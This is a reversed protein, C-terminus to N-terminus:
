VSMPLPPPLESSKRLLVFGMRSAFQEAKRRLVDLFEEWILSCSECCFLVTVNLVEARAPSCSAAECLIPSFTKDGVKEARLTFVVSSQLTPSLIESPAVAGDLIISGAFLM